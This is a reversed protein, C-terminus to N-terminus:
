QSPGYRQLKVYTPGHRNLFKQDSNLLNQSNKALFFFFFFIRKRYRTTSQTSVV